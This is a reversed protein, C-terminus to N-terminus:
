LICNLLTQCISIVLVGTGFSHWVPQKGAHLSLMRCVPKGSICRFLSLTLGCKLSEWAADSAWLSSMRRYHEQGCPHFGKQNWISGKGLSDHGLASHRWSVHSWLSVSLNCGILVILFHFIILKNAKRCISGDRSKFFCFSVM